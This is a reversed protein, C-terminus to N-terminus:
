NQGMTNSAWLPSNLSDYLVLNGDDQMILRYPGTGKGYTVSNWLPANTNDYVVLNGDTQMVTRYPSQGQGYTKSNWIPFNSGRGNTSGSSYLVFNGDSQMIAFYKKNQSDLQENMELTSGNKWETRLNLSLITSTMILFLTSCFILYKM